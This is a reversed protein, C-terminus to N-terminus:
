GNDSTFQRNLWDILGAKDTPIDLQEIGCPEGSYNGDPGAEKEEEHLSRMAQRLHSQAERKSPAWSLQSGNWPHWWSVRYVRM